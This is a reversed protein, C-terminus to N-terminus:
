AHAESHNDDGVSWSEGGGNDTRDWGPTYNGLALTLHNHRDLKIAQWRSSLAETMRMRKGVLPLKPKRQHSAPHNLAHIGRYSM